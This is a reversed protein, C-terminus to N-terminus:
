SKSGIDYIESIKHGTTKQTTKLWPYNADIEAQMRKTCNPDHINIGKARLALEVIPPIKAYLWWGKRIGDDMANDAAMSRTADILASVDQTNHIAITKKDDDYDMTHTIGTVPDYDLFESM